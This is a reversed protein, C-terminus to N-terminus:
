NTTFSRGYAINPTYNGDEQLTQRQFSGLRLFAQCAFCFAMDSFPGNPEYYFGNRALQLPTVDNLLQGEFFRARAEITYLPIVIFHKDPPLTPLHKPHLPPTQPNLPLPLTAAPTQAFISTRGIRNKFM